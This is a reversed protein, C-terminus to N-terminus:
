TYILPIARAYLPELRRPKRHRAALAALAEEVEETLQAVEEEALEPPAPLDALPEPNAFYTIPWFM